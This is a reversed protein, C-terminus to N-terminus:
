RLTRATTFKASCSPWGLAAANVVKADASIPFINFHGLRPTTVENGIVPTFYRRAGGGRGKEYDVHQNHDTAIPLEIGEGAITVMREALTADGHGSFTLTHCHTDCAIYGETPVERRLTLRREVTDAPGLTLETSAVDYEFGRGAYLTYEGAPLQFDATGDATYIVGPRM